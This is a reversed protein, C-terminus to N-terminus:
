LYKAAFHSSAADLASSRDQRPMEERSERSESMIPNRNPRPNDWDDDDYMVSAVPVNRFFNLVKTVSFTACCM